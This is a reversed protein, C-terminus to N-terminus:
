GLFAKVERLFEAKKEIEPRHGCKDLVMLTSDAISSKYVEGASLPSIQDERGRLLLTPLADITKLLHPLSPNHLFPSWALRSTEARADEWLEFAAPGIGGYLQDFEPTNDPDLVSAKLQAPAMLNFVDFIEGKGEPPRIGLPAVLVMRRFQAQDNAAMEAAVWGGLSFGVVDVPNLKQKRLFNAYFGALDRVNWIWEARTTVGFGPHLPITLEHEKALEVHWALWGPHGLEEHLVLLPSGKGGKIVVLDCGDVSVKEQHWGVAKAAMVQEGTEGL